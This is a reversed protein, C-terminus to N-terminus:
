TQNGTLKRIEPKRNVRVSMQGPIRLDVTNIDSGLLGFEKELETLKRWASEADKAPLRVNIADGLRLDWRRGGVRIAHTVRDNLDPERRLMALLDAAHKPADKGIIVKLHRYRDLGDRGIVNGNRDVLMFRNDHQWIAIPTRETLTVIITRPLRREIRARAVWGIELVRKRATDPDFFLIPDGLKVALAALLKERSVEKRGTVYVEGVIFGAGVTFDASMQRLAKATRTQLDANNTWYVAGAATAVVTLFGSAFLMPRRSRGRRARLRALGLREM